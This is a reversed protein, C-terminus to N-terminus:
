ENCKAKAYALLRFQFNWDDSPTAVALWNTLVPISGLSSFSSLLNKDVSRMSSERSVRDAMHTEWNSVRPVHRFHVICELFSSILHIARIIISASSDGKLSGVRGALSAM